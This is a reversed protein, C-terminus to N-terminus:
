ALVRKPRLLAVPVRGERIVVSRCSRHQEACAPVCCSRQRSHFANGVSAKGANSGKLELHALSAHLEKHM